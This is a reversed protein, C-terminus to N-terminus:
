RKNDKKQNADRVMEIPVSRDVDPPLIIKLDDDGTKEVMKRFQSFTREIDKGNMGGHIELEYEGQKIKITRAKRDEIWLAILKYVVHALGSTTVAITLLREIDDPPWPNPVVRPRKHSPSM